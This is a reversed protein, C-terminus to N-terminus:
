IDSGNTLDAIDYDDTAREGRARPEPREPEDRAERDGNLRFQVEHLRAYLGSRGLLEEHSGTEVIAGAELVIIQDAHQVTSLRHAIVFTTRNRVLNDIAQQILMETESDVSSTAEDLILIRADALIARAISIRQRQGGSLKM